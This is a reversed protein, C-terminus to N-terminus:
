HEHHHEEGRDANKERMHELEETSLDPLHRLFLVLQWISEDTDVGGWGPMGTFRIGNRIIQFLEGDTLQQTEPERLDTAPPYLGEGIETKGSGDEAHCLACHDAFHDRAAALIEPTPTYPNILRRGEPDIALRRLRRAVFEEIAWPKARASFGHSIVARYLSLAGICSFLLLVAIAISRRKM